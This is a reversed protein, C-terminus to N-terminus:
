PEWDFIVEPFPSDDPVSLDVGTINAIQERFWVTFEDQATAIDVFGDAVNGEFWVNLFAGVPTTVLTWTERTIASRAQFSNYQDRRPGLVEKAVSRALDEKGPRIPFVGNFVSM